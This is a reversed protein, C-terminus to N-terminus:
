RPKPDVYTSYVWGVMDTGGVRVKVWDPGREIETLEQGQRVQTIVLNDVGPGRRLNLAEVQVYLHPAPPAPPPQIEAPPPAMAVPMDPLSYEEAQAPEPPVSESAAFEPLPLQIVGAASASPQAPTEKQGLGLYSAAGVGALVLLGAGM